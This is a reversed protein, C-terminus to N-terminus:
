RSLMFCDATKEILLIAINIKEKFFKM